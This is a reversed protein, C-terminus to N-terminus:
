RLDHLSDRRGRHQLRGRRRRRRRCRVQEASASASATGTNGTITDHALAQHSASWLTGVGAGEVASGGSGGVGTVSATGTNGHIVTYSLSTESTPSEVTADSSVGGGIAEAGGSGTASASVSNGTITSHTVTLTGGDANFAGGGIAAASDTGTATAIIHNGTLTDHSLRLTGQNLVGGGALAPTSQITMATGTGGRITVGTLTATVGTGVTVVTGLQKGDPVTSNARAGALTLNKTVAM